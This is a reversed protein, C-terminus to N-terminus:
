SVRTNPSLPLTPYLRERHKPLTTLRIPEVRHSSSNDDPSINAINIHKREKIPSLIPPANWEWVRHEEGGIMQISEKICSNSRIIKRIRDWLKQKISRRYNLILSDRLHNVSIYPAISHERLSREKQDSLVTQVEDALLQVLRSEYRRRRFM